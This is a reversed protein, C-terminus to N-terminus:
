VEDTVFFSKIWTLVSPVFVGVALGAAVGLIFEM